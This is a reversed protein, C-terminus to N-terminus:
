GGVPKRRSPQQLVPSPSKPKCRTQAAKVSANKWNGGWLPLSKVVGAGRYLKAPSRAPSRQYPAHRAPFFSKIHAGRTLKFAVCM